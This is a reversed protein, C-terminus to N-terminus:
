GARDNEFCGSEGDGTRASSFRNRGFDIPSSLSKQAQRGRGRPPIVPPDFM